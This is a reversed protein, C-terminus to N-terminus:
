KYQIRLSLTTGAAHNLLNLPDGSFSVSNNGAPVTVTAVRGGLTITLTINSTHTSSFRITTTSGNSVVHGARYVTRSRCSDNNQRYQPYYTKYDELYIRESNDHYFGTITGLFDVAQPTVAGNGSFFGSRVVRDRVLTPTNHYQCPAIRDEADPRPDLRSDTSSVVQRGVTFTHNSLRVRYTMTRCFHGVNNWGLVGFFNMPYYGGITAGPQAHLSDHYNEAGTFIRQNVVVRGISQGVSYEAGWPRWAPDWGSWEHTKFEGTDRVLTGATNWIRVRIYQVGRRAGQDLGQHSGRGVNAISGAVHIRTTVGEFNTDIVETYTQDANYPYRSHGHHCEASRVITTDPIDSGWLPRALGHANLASSFYGPVSSYERQYVSGWGPMLKVTQVGQVVLSYRAVQGHWQAM